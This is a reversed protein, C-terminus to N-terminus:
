RKVECPFSPSAPCFSSCCLRVRSSNFLTPPLCCYGRGPPRPNRGNETGRSGRTQGLHGQVFVIAPINMLRGAAKGSETRYAKPKGFGSYKDSAVGRGNLIEVQAHVRLCLRTSFLREPLGMPKGWPFRCLRKNNIASRKHLAAWIVESGVPLSSEMEEIEWIENAIVGVNGSMTYRHQVCQKTNALLGPKPNYQGGLM